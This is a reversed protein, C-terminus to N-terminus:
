KYQMNLRYPRQKIPKADPNLPIKMEGLEEVIGKMESLKTPFPYQFEHLLDRIKKITEGDWYYGINVFKPNGM